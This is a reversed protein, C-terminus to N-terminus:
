KIDFTKELSIHLFQNKNNVKELRRWIEIDYNKSIRFCEELIFCTFWTFVLNFLKRCAINSIKLKPWFSVHFLKWSQSTFLKKIKKSCFYLKTQFKLQWSLLWTYIFIKLVFKTTINPLKSRWLCHGTNTAKRFSNKTITM